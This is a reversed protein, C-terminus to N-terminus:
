SAGAISPTAPAATAGSPAAAKATERLAAAAKLARAVPRRARRKQTPDEKGKPDSAKKPPPSAFGLARQATRALAQSRACERELRSKEKRLAELERGLSAAPGRRRPELALVLGEIARAELQYYRPLSVELAKAADVTTRAGALIELIAAAIRKAGHVEEPPPPTKVPKPAPKKREAPAKESRGPKSPAASTTATPSM